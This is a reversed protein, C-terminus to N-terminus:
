VSQDLVRQYRAQLDRVDVRIACAGRDDWGDSKLTKRHGVFYYTDDTDKIVQGHGIGYGPAILPEPDLTWAQPDGVGGMAPNYWTIATAYNTTWSANVAWTVGVFHNELYLAQPGEFILPCRTIWDYRPNELASFDILQRRSGAPRTPDTMPVVYPRQIMADSENQWGSYFLATQDAVRALTGDIGWRQSGDDLQDCYTFTKQLDDACFVHVRHTENQGTSLSILLYYRGEFYHLEPAWVEERSPCNVADIRLTQVPATSLGRLHDSSRYCVAHLRCTDSRSEGMYTCLFGTPIESVHPDPCHHLLDFGMESPLYLPADKSRAVRESHHHQALQQQVQSLRIRSEWFNPRHTELQSSWAEHHM